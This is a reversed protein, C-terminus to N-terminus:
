FSMPISRSTLSPVELGAAPNLQKQERVFVFGLSVKDISTQICLVRLGVKELYSM